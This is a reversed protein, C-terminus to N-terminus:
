RRNLIFHLTGKSSIGFKKMTLLYSKTKDHYKKIKDVCSEDYKTIFSSAYKADKTRLEKPIDLTNEQFTGIEINEPCNNLKNGDLHRVCDCMFVLIGYKQYACLRHVFVPISKINIRLSFRLYGNKNMTTRKISGVPSIVFGNKNVRYGNEFAKKVATNSLSYPNMM